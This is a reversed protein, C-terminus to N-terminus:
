PDERHLDLEPMLERSIVSLMETLKDVDEPAFRERIRGMVEKRYSSVISYYDFYKQTPRLHFERRDTASQIKELYGKHVLNNIKYAANPTSIKMMGSFESITPENLALITEMCFMEVTTLTAERCEFKGFVAQYFHLKFKTYVEDFARELTM